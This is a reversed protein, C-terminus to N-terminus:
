SKRQKRWYNNAYIAKDLLMRSMSQQRWTQLWTQHPQRRAPDAWILTTFVVDSGAYFGAATALVQTRM